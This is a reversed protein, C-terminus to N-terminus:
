AWLAMLMCVLIMRFSTALMWILSVVATSAHVRAIASRSSGYVLSFTGGIIFKGDSQRALALVSGNLGIGPNFDTDVVGNTNLRALFARNVLNVTNFAGGIVVKGDPQLALARVTKNPGAGANFSTDITGDFNLRAIRNQQDVGVLTKFDGGVMVKGILSPEATNTHVGLAYVTKNQSLAPDFRTFSSGDANLVAVRRRPLGNVSTFEGGIAIRKEPVTLVTNIILTYDWVTGPIGLGENMVVTISTSPGPGYPIVLTGADNTTLNILRVGNYYVRINDDIFYFDYNITITGSNAGTDVTFRDEQANGSASRPFVLTSTFSDRSLAVSYVQNNAGSGVNFGEDITGDANLRAVRNNTNGNFSTFDGGVVIRGDDQISISRVRGDFGIGPNFTVDVTGDPLLRAIRNRPVGSVTLFDGGIIVGGNTQVAIARVSGDAGIFQGSFDDQVAALNFSPDITGDANLRAVSYANSLNYSSFDGGIYIQGLPTTALAHITQDAGVGSLFGPNITGNPNLQSIHGQPTGNVTTFAGALILRQDTGLGTTINGTYEWGTGNNLGANVVIAINTAVGPGFAVSASGTVPSNSTVLNTQFIAVGDYYIRFNNTVVNTSFFFVPDFSFTVNVTGANAGAPISNSDNNPGNFFSSRFFPTLPLPSLAVAYVTDNAGGPPLFTPVPTGNPGLLAVRGAAQGNYNTFAGGVAVVGGANTNVTIAYVADNFGTGSNFSVDVAGNTNLRTFRNQALGNYYTFEGGVYLREAIDYAVAYVTKNAGYNENFTPDVVGSVPNETEDNIITVVANSPSDIYSFPAGVVNTLLVLFTRDPNFSTNDVIPVLFTKAAPDTPTWSLTGTVPVYDLGAVATVPATFYNVAIATNTVGTRVVTIVANTGNEAVFYANTSFRLTTDDNTITLTASALGLFNTADLLSLSLLVTEDGEGLTDNIIPVTFSLSTVNDQFTLNTTTTFYDQGATATGNATTVAVSVVGRRSNTRTVTITAFPEFENVGFNAAAFNFYSPGLEDDLIYLTQNTITGLTASGTADSLQISLARDGDVNTNNIIPVLFSKLTEGAAFSIINSSSIYDIAAKATGDFLTYKVTAANGSGNTRLILVTASGIAESVSNSSVTFTFQGPSFDNEVITLIANTIGPLVSNTGVIPQLVLGVTENGEGLADDIIFVNFYKVTEGPLFSLVNNTGFYDLGDTATGNTTTFYNVSVFSNTNGSRTVSITAKGSVSGESVSYFASSFGVQSEDNNIVLTATPQPGSTAGGTYNSLVLNVTRSSDMLLNDILRVSFFALTEAQPFTLTGNTAFYNTNALATGDFTSFDVMIAGTTGGRRKVVIVAEALNEAVQFVPVAFELTGPGAVSGGHIRAISKRPKDDYTSFGGGLVIRRDPQIVLASVFSNAGSGFNITPDTAGNANLRTLRGRSVDNFRSFSGGVLLKGDTQQALSLVSGNGGIESALFNTDLTGSPNLRLLFNRAIGNFNTFSGGVVLSGDPQVLISRVTSDLGTGVDFTADLTGNVNLRALNNLNTGNFVSFEGGIVVKGDAQVAVAHVIGNAGSGTNANFVGDVTGNTNLRVIGPATIGNFKSFAGGALVKGDTQLALAVVSGDAGSGPNFFHDVTGDINLRAIRSRNTNDIQTFTGGILVKGDAQLVMARVSDNPGAGINFTGDLFGDSTMRAVRNRTVNNVKTFDGAMLLRGDPQLALAYVPQNAQATANFTTDLTGALTNGSENDIITLLANSVTGLSANTPNSLSLNVTIDGDAVLDDVIAISFQKSLEGPLFVLTGNTSFYDTGILATGGPATAFDVSVTGAVGDTRVVTILVSGGNEDAVYFQYSFALKGFADSDLITLVANTRSGLAGVISPNFLQLNVTEPGEVLGDATLPVNIIRDSSDGDSWNLVNTSGQYDLGNTATGDGTAYQVTLVGVNGGTRTVTISALGDVESGTYNTSSFNIRGSPFDNDIITLIATATSTPLGGPLTAGGTANTLVLLVTEDFEVATDNLITVTFVQSTVGSDFTLTNTVSLYDLGPTATGSRTQYDVTVRGTFGNTRIVTITAQVANENTQYVPSSFNLVGASFDNDTITMVAEATGLAGGLPIFEGGLTLSGMVRTLSLDFTENGEIFADDFNTIFFYNFATSGVSRMFGAFEPWIQSNTVGLYDAGANALRDMTGAIIELTGLNGDIRRLTVASFPSNEDTTYSGLTFEANGPGQVPNPASNTGLSNGWGGVLSAINFRTRQNQRTWVPTYSGSNNIELCANGGLNTFSGGIMVNGNTQVAISNVFNKPEFSLPNVLGAFHNYATDMFTTDLSGNVKLRALGVRRTTNYSTFIGGILPKGDPQLTITYVSDNAGSGSQFSLDLAGDIGLRAINNRTRGDVDSFSGGVLIAGNDQVALAHVPGDVGLGTSFTTDVSGDPNLRVIGNNYEGNFFVFDGGVLIKNTGGAGTQVAVVRVVNDGGDGVSFSEDLSGDDNLRAVGHRVSDNFYSFEGAVIIQGNTQLAISRVPGLAGNGPNFTLDLSGNANLRAISNRQTGNFSAFGGGILMKGAHVSNTPYLVLSSVFSDAGNGPDFTLDLQGDVNLRAIHHRPVTNVATFDGGLVTKGDAQVAVVSVVNNAGPTSNFPPTTGAVGDRNWERDLAGPPDEDALITVNAVRAYPHIPLNSDDITVIIDENFEVLSDDLIPITILTRGKGGIAFPGSVDTFDVGPTAYDSGARLAGGIYNNMRINVTGPDPHGNVIALTISRGGYEDVRYSLREFAVRLPASVQAIGLISNSVSGLTPRILGPNEGPAARPNSLKLNVQKIFVNSSAFGFFSPSVPVIFNTSMQFDDFILTGHQPTYDLFETATADETDYDVLVRGTTGNTRIVTILAGPVSRFNDAASLFSEQDTVLYGGFGFLAPSSFNFEGATSVFNATEDDVITVVANSFAGLVAGGTANSLSLGFTLNTGPAGNDSIPVTFFLITEGNTFTLTGTRPTYDNGAVASIDSTAYDVTVDGVAGGGYLVAITIFGPTNELVSSNTTFFQIENVAPLGNNVVEWNLAFTGPLGFRADVAIRYEVGAQAPFSVLSPGPFFFINDNSAVEGLTALSTVNTYVALVTDFDTVFNGFTDFTADGSIPATWSFWVSNSAPFGAHAPEGPENTSGVTSGYPFVLSGSIGTIVQANTYSDNAPVAATAPMIGALALCAAILLGWAHTSAPRREFFKRGNTETM